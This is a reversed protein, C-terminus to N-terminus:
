TSERGPPRPCAQQQADDRGGEQFRAALRASTAEETFVLSNQTRKDSGYSSCAVKLSLVQSSHLFWEELQHCKSGISMLLHSPKGLRTRRSLLRIPVPQAGRELAKSGPSKGGPVRSPTESPFHVPSVMM